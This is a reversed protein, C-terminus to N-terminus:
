NGGIRAVFRIGTQENRSLCVIQLTEGNDRRAGNRCGGASHLAMCRDQGSSWRLVVLQTLRWTSESQSGWSENTGYAPRYALMTGSM